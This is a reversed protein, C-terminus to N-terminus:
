RVPVYGRRELCNQFLERDVTVPVLVHASANHGIAGQFCEAQDRKREVDTTGPKTYAIRPTACGTALAVLIVFLGVWQGRMMEDNRGKPGIPMDRAM